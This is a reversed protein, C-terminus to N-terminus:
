WYKTRYVQAPTNNFPFFFFFGDEKLGFSVIYIVIFSLNLLSFIKSIVTLKKIVITKINRNM